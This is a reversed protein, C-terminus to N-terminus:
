PKILERPVMEFMLRALDEESQNIRDNLREWVIGMAGYVLFRVKICLQEPLDAADNWRRYLDLCFQYIHEEMTILPLNQSRDTMIRLYFEKKEYVTRLIEAICGLSLRYENASFGGSFDQLFIWAALDYKDQFHYYFSQRQLGCRSCLESVRVEELSKTRLLDQLAQALAMKTRDKMEEPGEKGIDFVPLRSRIQFVAARDTGNVVDIM